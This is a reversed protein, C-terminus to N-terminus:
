AERWDLLASGAAAGIAGAVLPDKIVAIRLVPCRFGTTWNTEVGRGQGDILIWAVNRATENLEPGVYRLDIGPSGTGSPVLALRSADLASRVPHDGGAALRALLDRAEPFTVDSSAPESNVVIRVPRRGAWFLAAPLVGLLFDPGANDAFILVRGPAGPQPRGLLLERAAPGLGNLWGRVDALFRESRAADLEGRRYADQTSRSGLDFLNGALLSALIGGLAEEAGAVGNHAGAAWAAGIRQRALALCRESEAAKIARYPDAIGHSRLLNERIMTIDHVTRVASGATGRDLDDFLAGLVEAVRRGAHLRVGDGDRELIQLLYSLNERLIGVWHRAIAPERELDWLGPLGPAASCLVFREGAPAPVWSRWGRDESAAM